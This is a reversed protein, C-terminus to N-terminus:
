KEEKEMEKALNFNQADRNKVSAMNSAYANSAYQANSIDNPNIFISSMNGFNDPDLNDQDVVAASPVKVPSSQTGVKGELMKIRMLAKDLAHQLQNIMYQKSDSNEKLVTDESRMTRNTKKLTKIQKEMDVLLVELRNQYEKPYFKEIKKLKDIDILDVENIAVSM